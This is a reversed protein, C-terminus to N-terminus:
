NQINRSLMIITQLQSRSEEHLPQTVGVILERTSTACRAHVADRVSNVERWAEVEACSALHIHSGSRFVSAPEDCNYLIHVCAKCGTYFLECRWSTKTKIPNHHHKEYVYNEEDCLKRKGKESKIYTLAMTHIPCMNIYHLTCFISYYGEMGESSVEAEFIENNYECSNTTELVLKM